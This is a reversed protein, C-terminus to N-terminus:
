DFLLTLFIRVEHPTLVRIEVVWRPRRFGNRPPGNVVPCGRCPLPLPIQGTAPGRSTMLLCHLPFMRLGVDILDYWFTTINVLHYWGGEYQNFVNKTNPFESKFFTKNM